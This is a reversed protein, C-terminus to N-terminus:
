SFLSAGIDTMDTGAGNGSGMVMGFPDLAFPSVGAEEFTGARTATTTGSAIGPPATTTAGRVGPTRQSRSTESSTIATRASDIEDQLNARGAQLESLWQDGAAAEEAQVNATVAITASELAPDARDFTRRLQVLQNNIDRTFRNLGVDFTSIFRDLPNVVAITVQNLAAERADNVIADNSVGAMGQSILGQTVADVGGIQNNILGDFHDFGRNVLGNIRDLAADFRDILRASQTTARAVEVAAAAHAGVAAIASLVVRDDLSEVVLSVKRKQRRLNSACFM